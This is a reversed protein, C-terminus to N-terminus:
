KLFPERQGLVPNWGTILENTWALMELVGTVERRSRDVRFAEHDDRFHHYAEDLKKLFREEFTPDSEHLTRVICTALAAAGTRVTWQEDTLHAM